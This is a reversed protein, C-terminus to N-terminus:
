CAEVAGAEAGANEITSRQSCRSLTGEGGSCAGLNCRFGIWGQVPFTSKLGRRCTAYTKGVGGHTRGRQGDLAEIDSGCSILYDSVVARSRPPTRDKVMIWALRSV